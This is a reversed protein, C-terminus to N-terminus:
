DESSAESSTQKNFGKEVATIGSNTLTYTGKEDGKMIWGKAICKQLKDDPNEPVPEKAEKFCSIM